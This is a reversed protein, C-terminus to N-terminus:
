WCISHLNGRAQLCFVFMTSPNGQRIKQHGNDRKKNRNCFWLCLYPRLNELNFMQKDGVTTVVLQKWSTTQEKMVESNGEKRIPWKSEHKSKSPLFGYARGRGDKTYYHILYLDTHWMSIRWTVLSFNNTVIYSGSSTYNTNVFIYSLCFKFCSSKLYGFLITLSSTM